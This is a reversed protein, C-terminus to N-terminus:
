KAFCRHVRAEAHVHIDVFEDRARGRSARKGGERGRGVM